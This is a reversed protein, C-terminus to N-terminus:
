PRLARVHLLRGDTTEVRLTYWGSVEPWAITEGTSGGASVSRVTRGLADVLAYRLAAVPTGNESLGWSGALMRVQVTPMGGEPLGWFQPVALTDQPCTGGSKNVPLQVQQGWPNIGVLTDNIPGFRHYRFSGDAEVRLTDGNSKWVYDL